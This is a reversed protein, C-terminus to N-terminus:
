HHMCNALPSPMPPIPLSPTGHHRADVPVELSFSRLTKMVTERVKVANDPHNWLCDKLLLVDSLDVAARGNTTASVQLLHIIKEPASGVPKRAPRRFTERHLAWIRQIAQAIEPPLM